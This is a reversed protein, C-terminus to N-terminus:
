AGTRSLCTLGGCAQRKQGEHDANSKQWSQWVDTKNGGRPTVQRSVGGNRPTGLSPFGGATGFEPPPGFDSFAQTLSAGGAPIDSVSVTQGATGPAVETAGPTLAPDHALSAGVDATEGGADGRARGDGSGRRASVAVNHGGLHGGSNSTPLRADSLSPSSTLATSVARRPFAEPPAGAAAWAAGLQSSWPDPPRETPALNRGADSADLAAGELYVEVALATEQAKAEAVASRAEAREARDRLEMLGRQLETCRSVTRSIAETTRDKADQLGAYKASLDRVSAEARGIREDLPEAETSDNPIPSAQSFGSSKLGAVESELGDLRCVMSQGMSEQKGSTDLLYRMILEVRRRTMENAEVDDLSRQQRKERSAPQAPTANSRLWVDRVAAPSSRGFLAEDLNAHELKPVPSDELPAAGVPMLRPADTPPQTATAPM